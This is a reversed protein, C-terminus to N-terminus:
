VNDIASLWQSIRWDMWFRDPDRIGRSLFGLHGGQRTSVVDIYNSLHAREFMEFPVVPDDQSSLLITPVRVDKLVHISSADAYYDSAGDYGWLPATFQDDFAFLRDPVPNIGNDVLGVVRKRRYFLAQKLRFMFYAEYVRNGQQGLNWSTHLLDVPPSVVVASDIHRPFNEAWSGLTKMVVNGGISFGVLSVKSVPSLKHVFEVVSELDPSCGGHIHSRSILKSDGHGRMDVRITRIGHRKLKDSLRVVCPSAHFGVLGHLLIAIRDGTIWKKPQDDHIVLRDGDFLDVTHKVASYNSRPGPILLPTITQLLSTPCFASRRFPPYDAILVLLKPSVQPRQFQPFILISIIFRIKATALGLM